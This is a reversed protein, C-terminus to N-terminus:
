SETRPITLQMGPYIRNPNSGIVDRNREYLENWSSSGTMKRAISALCDGKKVTYVSEQPSDETARTLEKSITNEKTEGIRVVDSSPVSIPRHEKFSIDFYVDGSGDNEKYEFSPIRVRFSGVGTLILRATSSRMIKQVTDVCQMPAASRCDCYYPDFNKPFFSSFSFENLTRKGGLDVEGIANVTVTEIDRGLRISYEAPLVPFRLSRSGSKIWIQM